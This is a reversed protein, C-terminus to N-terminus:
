EDKREARKERTRPKEADSARSADRRLQRFVERGFAPTLRALRYRRLDLTRHRGDPRRVLLFPVCVDIVRLPAEDEDPLWRLQLVRSTASPGQLPECTLYERLEDLIAVYQGPELDEPAALKISNTEYEM